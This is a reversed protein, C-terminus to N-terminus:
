RRGTQVARRYVLDGSVVDEVAQGLSKFVTIRFLQIVAHHTPVGTNNPYFTVLKVGLAGASAAMLGLVGQHEAIPVMTRVPQVVKGSSLDSLAQEMAPILEEMRLLERVAAEDLILMACRGETKNVAVM